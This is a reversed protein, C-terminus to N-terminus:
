RRGTGPDGPRHRLEDLAARLRARRRRRRRWLAGTVLTTVIGTAFAGAVLLYLPVRAELGLFRLTAPRTNSALFAAVAAVVLTAFVALVLLRRDSPGPEAAPPPPGPPPPATM